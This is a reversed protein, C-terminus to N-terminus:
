KIDRVEIKTVQRVWRAPRKDLPVVLQLPGTDPLLREGDRRDAILIIQDTFAADVEAIGFVGQYGDPATAIIIRALAKGRLAEGLPVGAKTLVDRVAVGEFTAKRGHDSTVVTQRPFEALNVITVHGDPATVSITGQAHAPPTCLLTCFAAAALAKVIKSTM